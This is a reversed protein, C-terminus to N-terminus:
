PQSKMDTGSVLWVRDVGCRKAVADSDFDDSPQNFPGGVSIPDGLAIVTAGSTLVRRQPDYSAAEDEFVLAHDGSENAVVLCGRRAELTGSLRLLVPPALVEDEAAIKRSYFSLAAMEGDGEGGASDIDETEASTSRGNVEAETKCGGALCVALIIAVIRM